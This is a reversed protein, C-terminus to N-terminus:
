AAKIEVAYGLDNLKRLLRHALKTRDVSQFHEAGLDIYDTRRQLMYYAATLISAAVAIIAKKPGRRARLRLFQAQLYSGRVGLIQALEAPPLYQPKLTAVRMESQAWAGSAILGSMLVAWGWRKM